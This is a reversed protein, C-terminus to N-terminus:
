RPQKGANNDSQFLHHQQEPNEDRIVSTVKRTHTWKKEESCCKQGAYTLIKELLLLIICCGIVYVIYFYLKM